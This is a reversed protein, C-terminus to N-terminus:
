RDFHFECIWSRWTSVPRHHSRRRAHFISWYTALFSHCRSSSRLIIDFIIYFLSIGAYDLRSDRPSRLRARLFEAPLEVSGPTSFLEITSWPYEPVLVSPVLHLPFSTSDDNFGRSALVTYLCNPLILPSTSAPGTPTLTSSREPTSGTSRSSRDPLERGVIGNMEDHFETLDGRTPLIFSRRPLKSRSHSGPVYSARRPSGRGPCAYPHAWSSSRVGAAVRPFPASRPSTARFVTGGSGVSSASDDSRRTADTAGPAPTVRSQLVTEDIIASLAANDIQSVTLREPLPRYSGTSHSSRTLSHPSAEAIFTSSAPLSYPAAPAEPTEAALRTLRRTKVRQEM